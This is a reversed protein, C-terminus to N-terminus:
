FNPVITSSVVVSDHRMDVAYSEQDSQVSMTLM